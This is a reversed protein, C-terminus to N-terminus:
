IYGVPIINVDKTLPLLNQYFCIIAGKGKKLGIKELIEFNAVDKQHPSATRKIEVPYFTGNQEILLDIEDKDKDRYFYFGAQKGNYWYSKLIESVVYTELIAGSMAGNSLADANDWGSLYCCLGTDLFYMKPTKTARKAINNYYPQLLYILGSTELISIWSKITNVSVDVDKALDSYNLLQGTRSAAVRMFKLFSHEDSINLLDRVDREIYTKLYSAYFINKDLDPVAFLEPYSGRLILDYIQRIDTQQKNKFGGDPLFPESEPKQQKESFSLGQLELIAIRGALSESVNKMMQFQQSGTLWFLGKKKERDIAMKIYPFLEPAYQIEDILLPTKYTQLFLNPDTQALERIQPDDLSVYTRGLEKNKEFLTTKGVQRPGTILVAPFTATVKKLVGSLTREFYM